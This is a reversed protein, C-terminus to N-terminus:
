TIKMKNRRPPTVKIPEATKHKKKLQIIYLMKPPISSVCTYAHHGPYPLLYTFIVFRTAVNCLLSIIEQKNKKKKPFCLIIRKKKSRYMAHLYLIKYM